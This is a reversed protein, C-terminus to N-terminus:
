ILSSSADPESAPKDLLTVHFLTTMLDLEIYDLLWDM